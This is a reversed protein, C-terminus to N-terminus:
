SLLERIKALVARPSCPKAVYAACGASMAKAADSPHAYSSVAIVPIHRLDPDAKIRATAECGDVVPLEIDMLILDPRHAQAMEIGAAGDVAEILEFGAHTLYDRLITRNDETDEVLLILKTM